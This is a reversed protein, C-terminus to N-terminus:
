HAPGKWDPNAKLMEDRQAALNPPMEAYVDDFLTEPTPWDAAEARKSAENIRKAAENRVEKAGSADLLGETALWAEYRKIPDKAEWEALLAADRYRTPDDSSSHGGMRFTVTEILTPGGGARAKDAAEKAASYVALVDNGDVRVGEFGYAVAKQAFSASGTQLRTPVSIAWQNNQVVFVNPLKHVGALNLAAHFDSESTGGDGVFGMFVRDHGKVKAAYAAGAAHLLQTAMSSSWSVQHVSRASYHCPMQRGKMVDLANGFNAAVYQDLPFGRMLMIIGERLAPFVWDDDRLAMGCGVAGAEQGRVEGYFGIRGARQLAMMKDDFVRSFVMWRHM